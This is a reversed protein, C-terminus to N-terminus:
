TTINRFHNKSLEPQYTQHLNESNDRNTWTTRPQQKWFNPNNNKKKFKNVKNKCTEPNRKTTPNSKWLKVNDPIWKTQKLNIKPQELHNLNGMKNEAAQLTNM